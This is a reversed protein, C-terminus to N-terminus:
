PPRPRGPAPLPSPAASPRPPPAPRAGAGSPAAPARGGVLPAGPGGGAGGPYAVAVIQERELALLLLREREAAPRGAFERRWRELLARVDELLVAELDALAGGARSAAAREGYFHAGIRGGLGGSVGHGQRSHGNSVDAVSSVSTLQASRPRSVMSGPM